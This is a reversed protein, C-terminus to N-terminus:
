WDVDASVNVAPSPAFSAAAKAAARTPGDLQPDRLVTEAAVLGGIRRLFWPDVATIGILREETWGRRLGEALEWLREPSPM